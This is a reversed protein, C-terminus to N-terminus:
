VRVRAGVCMGEVVGDCMVLCVLSVFEVQVFVLVTVCLCVCVCCRRVCVCVKWCWVVGSWVVM